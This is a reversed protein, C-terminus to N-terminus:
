GSRVAPRGSLRGAGGRSRRVGAREGAPREAVVPLPRDGAGHAPPAPRQVAHQILDVPLEVHEFRGTGKLTTYHNRGQAKAAKYIPGSYVLNKEGYVRARAWLALRKGVDLKNTPHIDEPDGLDITVVMATAPVDLAAFSSPQSRLAPVRSAPLHASTTATAPSGSRSMPAISCTVNTIFFPTM